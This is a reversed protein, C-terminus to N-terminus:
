QGRKLEKPEKRPHYLGDSEWIYWVEKTTLCTATYTDYLWISEYDFAREDGCLIMRNQAVPHPGPTLTM